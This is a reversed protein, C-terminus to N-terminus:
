RRGPFGHTDARQVADAPGRSDSYEWDTFGLNNCTGYAAGGGFCTGFDTREDDRDPRM